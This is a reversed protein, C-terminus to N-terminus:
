KDARNEKRDHLDEKDLILQLLPNRYFTIYRHRTKGIRKQPRYRVEQTFEWHAKIANAEFLNKLIKQMNLRHLGRRCIVIDALGIVVSPILYVFEKDYYGLLIKNPQIKDSENIPLFYFDRDLMLRYVIQTFRFTEKDEIM